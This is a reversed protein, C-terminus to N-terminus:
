CGHAEGRVRAWRKLAAKRQAECHAPSKPKRMKKITDESFVRGILKQSIKNKVAPSTELGFNWQKETKFRKTQAKSIIDRVEKTQPKGLRRKNGLMQARRKQRFSETASWTSLGYGGDNSNTLEVGDAKLKAIVERETKDWVANEVLTVVEIEVGENLAKRIWCVKHYKLDPKRATSLHHNLRKQATRTTQGVYRIVKDDARRLGYVTTRVAM